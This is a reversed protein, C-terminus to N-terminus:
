LNTSEIVELYPCKWNDNALFVWCGIRHGFIVLEDKYKTVLSYHWKTEANRLKVYSGEEILKGNKDRYGSFTNNKM